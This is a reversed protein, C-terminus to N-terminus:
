RVVLHPVSTFPGTPNFHLGLPAIRGGTVSFSVSGRLSRSLPFRNTTEFSTHGRAALAFSEQHITAGSESRFSATVTAAEPTPNALALSTVFSEVNDFSFVIELSDVTVGPVAAEFEPSGPVRQRFVAFGSVTGTTTLIEAWGVSLSPDMGTTEIVTSGGAAINRNLTSVRGSEVLDLTLASGSSSYFRIQAVLAAATSGNVITFRTKWTDGDAIHPIILRYRFGGPMVVTLTFQKTDEARNADVVRATITFTGGIAPTGTIAGTTSNLSLGLPLSGASVSWAYAGTGGTAQLTRSYATSLTADPLPSPTTIQPGSPGTVPPNITFPLSNFGQLTITATGGNPYLAATILSAPITARIESSSIFTTALPAGNWLLIEGLELDEGFVVLTFGPSGATVQGPVLQSIHASASVALIFFAAIGKCHSLISIPGTM